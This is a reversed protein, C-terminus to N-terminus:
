GIDALSILAKGHQFIEKQAEHFDMDEIMGRLLRDVPNLYQLFQGPMAIPEARAREIRCQM